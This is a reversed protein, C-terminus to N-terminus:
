APRGRTAPFRPAWRTRQGASRSSRGWGGGRTVRDATQSPGLPDAAPSQGFYKADFSDWCWEWVNGYMDHLGFVNPRKGGVPHTTGEANGVYWAYEGLREADDGYCYRTTSGARCAYEWEAETPLRYGPGTWDPVEVKGKDIRYFEPLGEKRSLANCYNVADLWSVQEVPLDDSGQSSSPNAGTVARYRGQTVETAGLYFPRTIRVRHQPKENDRGDKDSNPSGMAFEGAPILVLKMALSNTIRRATPITADRPAFPDRPFIADAMLHEDAPPKAFLKPLGSPDNKLLALAQTLKGARSYSEAYWLLDEGRTTGAAVARDIYPLARPSTDREFGRTADWIWIQGDSSAAALQAGDPHWSVDHFFGANGRLVFTEEGTRPDWVRVSNDLGASALRTGDPSWAVADVFDNHGRMTSLKRGTKADWAIVLRDAGASALRKGDPSWAVGMVYDKHGQMRALEAGRIPDWLKVLRDTGGSALRDGQPSWALIRAGHAGATGLTRPEHAKFDHVKPTQKLGEVVRITGDESGAALRTGEPSWAVSWVRGHDSPLVFIARGSAVEWVKVRGDLGASALRTGDPSWALSRILGFQQNVRREDHGKLTLVENRTVPDWIRVKGDDGGSALRKGDPSWAVSTARVVHGPLVSSEQDRISDWIRKTGDLAGSALRGDPSWALSTIRDRHGRLTLDEHGTTANWIKVTLDAGGTALRQGNPEWAVSMIRHSHRLPGLVLKGTAVEWIRATFDGSASALRAGDPSWALHYITDVHGWLSVISGGAHTGSITVTGDYHGSALLTDDPSWAGAHVDGPHAVDATLRGTNADWIKITGDEGWTALRMGDSSYAVSYVPSKHGRLVKLKRGSGTEWVHVTGDGCGAALRGGDPSWALWRVGQLFRTVVPAPARLILTTQERDVDWIRILGDATGEALRKGAVHWAVISPGHIRGRETLTRLNQYPLSNLYFWEWGRRDTSDGKPIWNALLERMHPLGRHERWAQQALHMQAYYLNQQAVEAEHDARKRQETAEREAKEAQTRAQDAAERAMSEAKAQRSAQQRASREANAANREREAMGAFRGMALLSGITALVLVATLVGGLIAIAPNRRAWRAYREAASSRRAQIPEDALFRRLDEALAEASPYRRQPDKDIAKLVITELDRPIRSDISRPRVPEENKIQEILKLRDSSDYAPRLTLLEYLTLGLAYVDARADGEGRFREPAM